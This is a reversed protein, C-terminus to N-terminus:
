KVLAPNVAPIAEYHYTVKHSFFRGGISWSEPLGTVNNVYLVYHQNDSGKSLDFISHWSGHRIFSGLCSVERLRKISFPLLQNEYNAIFRSFINGNEDWVKWGDGENIWRETGAVVFDLVKDEQSVTARYKAEIRVAEASQRTYVVILKSGHEGENVIDARFPVTKLRDFAQVLYDQCSAAVGPAPLLLLLIAALLYRM